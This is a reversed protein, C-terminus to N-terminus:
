RSEHIVGIYTPESSVPTSLVMSCKLEIEASVECV